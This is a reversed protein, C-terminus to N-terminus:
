RMLNATLFYQQRLQGDVVVADAHRLNRQAVSHATPRRM